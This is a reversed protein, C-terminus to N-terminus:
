NLCRVHNFDCREFLHYTFYRYDMVINQLVDAMSLYFISDVLAFMYIKRYM